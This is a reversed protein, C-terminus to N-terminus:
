FYEQLGEKLVEFPRLEAIDWAQEPQHICNLLAAAGEPTLAIEASAPRREIIIKRGPNLRVESFPYRYSVAQRQVAESYSVRVELGETAVLSGLSPHFNLREKSRSLLWADAPVNAQRLGEAQRLVADSPGVLALSRIYGAETLAEHGKAAFAGNRRRAAQAQYRNKYVFSCYNIPLDIGRELTDRILELACLESELVTVKEGHLFTYGRGQFREFNYPTLRLQHLNLHAIGCAAMESIKDRLLAYKEPVAPIEVTVTPIVGVAAVAKTLHYDVAGIDFRIEDLGADRLQGLIDSAVLTGNTYLWTHVAAGFRKKVARLYSLTREPTLLPEGGSFSVGTFGFAAIYDAYDEPSDFELSNTTPRGIDDQASPCYFCDCNCRGNIFLCSWRGAVCVACGPSLRNCDLKTGGCGLAAKGAVAKLLENRRALAAAAEQGTPFKLQAYREGYEERNRAIIQERTM